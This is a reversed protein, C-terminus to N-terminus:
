EKVGGAKLAALCIALPVTESIVEREILTDEHMPSDDLFAVSYVKQRTMSLTDSRLILRLHSLKEVVTWASSMDISYRPFDDWEVLDRSDLGMVKEAVLADLERGAPKM